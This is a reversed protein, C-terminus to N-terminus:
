FIRSIISTPWGVIATFDFAFFFPGIRRRVTQQSTLGTAASGLVMNIAALESETQIFVRKEQHMRLAMHATLENQPTIPYGYYADVGAQVAAEGIAQNGKMLVKESM